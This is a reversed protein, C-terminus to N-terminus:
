TEDRRIMAVWLADRQQRMAAEGTRALDLQRQNDARERDIQQELEEIRERREANLAMCEEFSLRRDDRAGQSRDRQRGWLTSALTGVTGIAGLVLGIITITTSM